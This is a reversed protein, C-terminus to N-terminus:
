SLLGIGTFPHTELVREVYLAVPTEAVEGGVETEASYIWAYDWGKKDVGTFPGITANEINKSIKFDYTLQNTDADWDISGRCGNFYVEGAPKGRFEASNYKKAAAEIAELEANSITGAPFEMVISFQTAQVEVDVGEPKGAVVNIAGEFDPPTAGDLGYSNVTELSHTRKTTEGSIDFSVSVERPIPDGNEDEDDPRSFTATARWQGGREETTEDLIIRDVKRGGSLSAAILRAAAEAEAHTSVDFIDFTKDRTDNRPDADLSSRTGIEETSHM